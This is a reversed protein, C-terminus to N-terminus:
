DNEFKTDYNNNRYITTIKQMMDGYKDKLTYPVACLVTEYEELNEDPVLCSCFVVDLYKRDNDNSLSDRLRNSNLNKSVLAMTEWDKVEIFDLPKIRICSELDSKTIYRSEFKRVLNNIEHDKCVM